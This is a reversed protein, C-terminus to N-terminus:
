KGSLISKFKTPNAFLRLAEQIDQDKEFAVFKMAKQYYYRSLIELELNERIQERYKKTLGAANADALKKIEDLNTKM